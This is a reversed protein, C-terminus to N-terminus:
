KGKLRFYMSGSALTQILPDTKSNCMIVTQMREECSQTQHIALVKSSLQSNGRAM